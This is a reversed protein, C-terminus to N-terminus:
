GPAGPVSTAAARRTSSASWSRVNPGSATPTAARRRRIHAAERSHLPVIAARGPQHFPPRIHAPRYDPQEQAHEQRQGKTATRQGTGSSARALIRRRPVDFDAALAIIMRQLRLREERGRDRDVFAIRDVPGHVGGEDMRDGEQRAAWRRRLRDWRTFIIEQHEVRLVSKRHTPRSVISGPEDARPDEVALAGAERQCEGLGPCIAIHAHQMGAHGARHDDLRGTASVRHSLRLDVRLGVGLQVCFEAKGVLLECANLGGRLRIRISRPGVRDDVADAAVLCGHQAEQRDIQRDLGAVADSERDLVRVLDVRDREIIRRARHRREKVRARLRAPRGLQDNRVRKGLAARPHFALPQIIRADQPGALAIRERERLGPDVVIDTHDM